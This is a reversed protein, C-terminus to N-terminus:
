EGIYVNTLSNIFQDKSFRQVSLIGEQILRDRLADNSLIEKIAEYIEDSNKFGVVLANHRDKIFEPAVGSLTFISPVGAALAEVYIQGFAEVQSDIPVHIFIDMVKYLAFIDEEYDVLRYSGVPLEELEKLIFDKFPGNANALLLLASPNDGLVNKFARIIYEVGKWSIFRSIVGIVPFGEIKYKENTREIRESSINLFRDLYFGHHVLKIKRENVKELDILVSKVNDSIAIIGTSMYNTLKDYKIKSPYYQHQLTSHHRTYLRKKIGLLWGAPIGLLYAFRNHCHIIHPRYIILDSMIGIFARILNLKSNVRLRKVSFNKGLLFDELHSEGNNLLIFRLDVENLGEAVMEFGLSHQVRSIIYTVKPM